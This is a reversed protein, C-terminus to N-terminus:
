NRCDEVVRGIEAWAPVVLRSSGAAEIAIRGRSYAIWDFLQDSAARSVTLAADGSATVPWQVAGYTTRITMAAATGGAGTRAFSLQRTGTACSLTLLPAGGPTRFQAFSRGADSGYFWNGAEVPAVEWSLDPQPAPAPVPPQAPAPLPSPSPPAAPPVAQCGALLAFAALATVRHTISTMQM